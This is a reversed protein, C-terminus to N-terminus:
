CRDTIPLPSNRLSRRVLSGNPATQQHTSSFSLTSSSPRDYNITSVLNSIERSSKKSVRVRSQAEAKFFETFPGKPPNPFGIVRLVEHIQGQSADVGNVYDSDVSPPLLPDGM